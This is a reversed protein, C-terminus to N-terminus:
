KLIYRVGLGGQGAGFRNVSYYFRGLFLSPVWDVTVSLPLGLSNLNYEAGLYGQIGATTTEFGSGSRGLNDTWLYVSAGGGAYWQLGDIDLFDLEGHHLLAASVNFWRLWTYYGRTGVYAELANKENVFHKISISTPYGIRLGAATKYSQAKAPLVFAACCLLIIAPLFHRKMPQLMSNPSLNAQKM